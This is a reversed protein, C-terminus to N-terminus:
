TGDLDRLEPPLHRLDGLAVLLPGSKKLEFRTIAAVPQAIRDRFLRVDLGLLACVMIRITAKHSAILVRGEPVDRKINELVRAARAAVHFATEGGPTGRSATDAAWYGYAEPWQAKVDEHRLGEWDGYAMERLGEEIVIDAGIRGALAAATARARASPSSFVATWTQSAYAAGFAEAMQEGIANLPPDIAGCFRNERSYDTQGHRVLVLELM